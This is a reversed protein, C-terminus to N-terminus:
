TILPIFVHVSLLTIATASCYAKKSEIVLEPVTWFPGDNFEMMDCKFVAERRGDRLGPDVCTKGSGPLM